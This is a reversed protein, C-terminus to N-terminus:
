GQRLLDQQVELITTTAMVLGTQVPKWSGQLGIKLGRFLHISDRLFSIAKEYEEMKFHSLATVVNRSSMLDFWHDIKELFWSTTLYSEPRREEM